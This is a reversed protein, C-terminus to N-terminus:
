ASVDVFPHPRLALKRLSYITHGVLVLPLALVAAVVLRFIAPANLLWLPAAGVPWTWIMPTFAWVQTLSWFATPASKGTGVTRRVLQDLLMPLSVLPFLAFQM